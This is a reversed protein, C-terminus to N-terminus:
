FRAPVVLRSASAISFGFRQSDEANPVNVGAVVTSAPQAVAPSPSSTAYATGHAVVGFMVILLAYPVRM